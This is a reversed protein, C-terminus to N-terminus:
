TSSIAMCRLRVQLLSPCVSVDVASGCLLVALPAISPVLLWTPETGWAGSAHVVDVDVDGHEVYSM